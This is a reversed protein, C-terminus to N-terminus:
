DSPGLLLDETLNEERLRPPAGLCWTLLRPGLAGGEREINRGGIINGGERGGQRGPIDKVEGEKDQGEGTWSRPDTGDIVTWRGVKKGRKM